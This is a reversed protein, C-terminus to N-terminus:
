KRHQIYLTDYLMKLVFGSDYGKRLLLMEVEHPLAFMHKFCEKKGM